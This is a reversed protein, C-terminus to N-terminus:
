LRENEAGSDSHGFFLFMASSYPKQQYWLQILFSYVKITFMNRTKLVVCM